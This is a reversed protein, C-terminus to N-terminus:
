RKQSARWASCARWNNGAARRRSLKCCRYTFGHFGGTFTARDMMNVPANFHPWHLKSTRVEAITTSADLELPLAELAITKTSMSEKWYLSWKEKQLRPQVTLQVVQLVAHDRM